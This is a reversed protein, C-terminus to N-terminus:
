FSYEGFRDSLMQELITTAATGAVNQLREEWPADSEVYQGNVWEGYGYRGPATYVEVTGPKGELIGNSDPMDAAKDWIDRAGEPWLSQAVAFRSTIHVDQWEIPEYIV